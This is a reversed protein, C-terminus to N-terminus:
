GALSTEPGQAKRATVIPQHYGSEEPMHWEIELFGAEKMLAELEARLLARYITAYQTVQWDTASRGGQAKERMIFLNVTYTRGDSTWDWVQFVIHRGEPRDFVRPGEGRPRALAVRDYDRISLLLLGGGRVKAHMSHVAERLDDDTLLHPLSNDCSLVIDFTGTVVSELARFDAVEFAISVGFSAAERRAREIQAPNLDTAHVPYGLRALGIAQTGIGCSCDLVSHLGPGMRQLILSRLIEGQRRVTTEWDAFILHYDAALREYFQLVSEEM